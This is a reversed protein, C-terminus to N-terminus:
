HKPAAGYVGDLLEEYLDEVARRRVNGKTSTRPLTSREVVIIYKTSTIREQVYRRSHFDETRRIIEEKLKEADM